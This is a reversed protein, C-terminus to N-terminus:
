VMLFICVVGLEVCMLVEVEENLICWYVEFYQNFIEIEFICVLM